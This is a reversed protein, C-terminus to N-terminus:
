RLLEAIKDFDSPYWLYVEACAARSLEVLWFYQEPTPQGAERKLEAIVLRGERTM